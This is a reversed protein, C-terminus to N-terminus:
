PLNNINVREPINSIRYCTRKQINVYPFRSTTYITGHM